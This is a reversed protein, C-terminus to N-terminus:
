AERAPLLDFRGRSTGDQIYQYPEYGYGYGYGMAAKPYKTILGGVLNGGADKMRAIANLAAKTRTKRSEIVMLTHQCSASLLPADALGLVPPGDVIVIDFQETAEMILSKLRPSALIQAPNPPVAGATMLFLNELKTRSTHDALKGETTLLISLGKDSSGSFVPKRLDGDILLVSQGLRAFSMALALTTSSKGEGAKASTVLLSKPAGRDTSFRLSTVLSFYAEAVASSTDELEGTINKLNAVKPIAGLPAIHLKDRVDDPNKITDNIFELALASGIGAILGFGLGVLLNMPLNPSYPGGPIEADDVV